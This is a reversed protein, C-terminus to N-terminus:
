EVVFDGDAVVFGDLGGGVGDEGGTANRIVRIAALGFGTVIMKDVHRQM